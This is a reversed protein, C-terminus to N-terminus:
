AHITRQLLRARAKEMVREVLDDPVQIFPGKDREELIEELTEQRHDPAIDISHEEQWHNMEVLSLVFNEPSEYGENAKRNLFPMLADPLNITLQPM